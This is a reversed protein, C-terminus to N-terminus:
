RRVVERPQAPSPMVWMPSLEVRMDFGTAVLLRALTPVTPQRHGNEYASILAHSVGARGGLAAQTLGARRRAAKLAGAATEEDM